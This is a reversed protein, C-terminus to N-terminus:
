EAFPDYDDNVEVIVENNEPNYKYEPENGNAVRNETTETEIEPNFPAFITGAPTTYDAIETTETGITTTDASTTNKEEGSQCACFTLILLSTSIILLAKKM